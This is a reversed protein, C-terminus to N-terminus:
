IRGQPITVWYLGNLAAKAWHVVRSPRSPRGPKDYDFNMVTARGAGTEILCLVQGRYSRVAGAGRIERLLGTVVATAQLHAVAGTKPIPLDTIDGLAFMRECGVVRLTHPDVSVWKRPALGAEEVAPAVRHPPVLVALDFGVEEGEYSRVAGEIVEKVNFDTTARIGRAELLPRIVQAVAQGHFVEPYPSLYHPETRGRQRRSRLHDHLLLVFELPAPPCKYVKRSPGVVIRGGAFRGLAERLRLAGQQDYFHHAKSFGPVREPDLEAGMALVLWGYDLREGDVIVVRAEPDIAEVTGQLYRVRRHLLRRVQRALAEPRRDNFPLYLLGPQYVHQGTGDVLLVEAEEPQLRRALRNAVITGGVGGGLILVRVPM